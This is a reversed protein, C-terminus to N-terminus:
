LNGNLKNLKISTLANTLSANNEQFHAIQALLRVSSSVGVIYRSFEPIIDMGKLTNFNVLAASADHEEQNLILLFTNIESQTLWEDQLVHLADRIRLLKNHLDRIEDTQRKVAALRRFHRNNGRMRHLRSPLGGKISNQM